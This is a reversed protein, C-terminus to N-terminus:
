HGPFTRGFPARATSGSSIFCHSGEVNCVQVHRASSQAEAEDLQLAIAWHALPVLLCLLATIAFVLNILANRSKM